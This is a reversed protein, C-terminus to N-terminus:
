FGAQSVSLSFIVWFVMKQFWNMEIGRLKRACIYGLQIICFIVRFIGMVTYFKTMFSVYRLYKQTIEVWTRKSATM